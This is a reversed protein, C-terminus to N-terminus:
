VIRLLRIYAHRILKVLFFLANLESKLVMSKLDSIVRYRQFLALVNNNKKLIGDDFNSLAVYRLWEKLYGKMHKMLEPKHKEELCSFTQPILLQLGSYLRMTFDNIDNKNSPIVETDPPCDSCLRYKVGSAILARIHIEIDQYRPFTENFGGIKLFFKKEWIPCMIAWYSKKSLFNILSDKGNNFDRRLYGGRSNKVKFPFVSFNLNPESIMIKIRQELCFPELLDDSDLFILYNGQANEAGINRCTSASKPERNRKIFRIRPESSYKNAMIEGINDTSGDDVIIHEWHKYTQAIVSDITQPVIAARNFVPTIISVVPEKRPM